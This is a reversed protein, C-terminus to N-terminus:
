NTVQRSSEFAADKGNARLDKLTKNFDDAKSCDEEGIEDSGAKNIQAKDIGCVDGMDWDGEIMLNIHIVDPESGTDRKRTIHRVTPKKDTVSIV